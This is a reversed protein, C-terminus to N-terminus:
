ANARAADFESLNFQAEGLVRLLRAESSPDDALETQVRSVADAVVLAPKRAVEANRTLPDQERYLAALFDSVREARQLQTRERRMGITTALAIGALGVVVSALLWRRARMRPADVMDQLARRLEETRPRAVPDADLLCAMLTRLRRPGPVSGIQGRDPYCGTALLHALVGYAYLDVALTAAKGAEIEPALYRPTGAGMTSGESSSEFGAGFDMLIVRGHQDLMVNSAKVDGHVLGAQHVADLAEVLEQLVRLLEEGRLPGARDLRASLTEGEIWDTWLGARGAHYSAGHVALVNPHRVRALRRAEAVFDVGSPLTSASDAHRLKLAVTRDLTPDYARYVAGFGGQGALQLQQLHGWRAGADTDGSMAKALSQLKALRRALQPDRTELEALDVVEGDAIRRAIELEVDAEASM